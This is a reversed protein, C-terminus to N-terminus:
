LIEGTGELGDLEFVYMQVILIDDCLMVFIVTARREDLMLYM